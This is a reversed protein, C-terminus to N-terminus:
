ESSVGIQGRNVGFPTLLPDTRYNIIRGPGAWKDGMKDATEDGSKDEMAKNPPPIKM